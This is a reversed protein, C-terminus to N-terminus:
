AEECTRRRSIPICRLDARLYGTAIITEAGNIFPPPIKLSHNIFHRINAEFMQRHHVPKANTFKDKLETGTRRSRDNPARRSTFGSVDLLVDSRGNATVAAVVQFWSGWFTLVDAVVSCNERIKFVWRNLTSQDHPEGGAGGVRWDLQHVVAGNYM